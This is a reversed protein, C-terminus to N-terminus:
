HKRIRRVIGFAGLSFGTVLAWTAPEPVPTVSLQLIPAVWQSGSTATGGAQFVANYTSGPATGFGSAPTSDADVFPATSSTGSTRIEFVLDGGTYQFPTNFTLVPGFSNPTSGLTFSNAPITLPGSRVVTPSPLNNAFTASMTEATTAAQGISITYDPYSLASAPATGSGGGDLRFAIGTITDGSTLGLASQEILIQTTGGFSGSLPTFNSSTGGEASSFPAPAVVVQGLVAPLSLPLALTACKIISSIFRTNTM